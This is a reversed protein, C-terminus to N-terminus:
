KAATSGSSEYGDSTNWETNGATKRIRETVELGLSRWADHAKTMDEDSLGDTLAEPVDNSLILIALVKLARSKHERRIM